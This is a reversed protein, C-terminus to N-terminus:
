IFIDVNDNHTILMSKILLLYMMTM